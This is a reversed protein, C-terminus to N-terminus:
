MGHGEAEHVIWMSEERWKCNQIMPIKIEECNTESQDMASARENLLLRPKERFLVAEVWCLGQDVKSMQRVKGPTRDRSPILFKTFLQPGSHWTRVHHGTRSRRDVREGCGGANPHRCSRFHWKYVSANHHIFPRTGVSGDRLAAQKPADWNRINNPPSESVFGREHTSETLQELCSWIGQSMYRSKSPKGVVVRGRARHTPRSHLLVM